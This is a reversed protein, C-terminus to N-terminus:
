ANDLFLIVPPPLAGANKMAERIEASQAWARAEDLSNWTELIIIENADASDQFVKASVFGRQKKTESLSDFVTRWRAYDQVRERIYMSPM